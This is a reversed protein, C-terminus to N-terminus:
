PLDRGLREGLDLPDRGALPLRRLRASRAVARPLRHRGGHPGADPAARARQGDSGLDLRGPVPLGQLEDLALPPRGAIYHEEDFAQLERQPTSPDSALLAVTSEGAGVSAEPFAHRGLLHDWDGHTVLLGSVPFGSQELVQPLAELEHPLVPSDILFGEDGARLATCTTQWFGSVFVIADADVALVRM